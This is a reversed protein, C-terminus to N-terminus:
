EIDMLDSLRNSVLVDLTKAFSCMEDPSCNWTYVIRKGNEDEGSLVFAGLQVREGDVEIAAGTRKERKKGEFSVISPKQDNDKPMFAGGSLTYLLLLAIIGATWM